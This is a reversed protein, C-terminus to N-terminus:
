YKGHIYILDAFTGECSVDLYEIYRENCTVVNKFGNFCNLYTDIPINYTEAHNNDGPFICAIDKKRFNM